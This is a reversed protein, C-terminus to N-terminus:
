FKNGKLHYSSTSFNKRNMDSCPCLDGERCNMDDWESDSNIPKRRRSGFSATKPRLTPIKSQAHVSIRLEEDDSHYSFINDQKM